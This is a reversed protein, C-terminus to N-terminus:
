DPWIPLKVRLVFRAFIILVLFTPLPFLMFWATQDAFRKEDSTVYRIKGGRNMVVTQTVTPIEAGSRFTSGVIILGALHSLIMAVFAAVVFASV